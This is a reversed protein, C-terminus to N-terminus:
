SPSDGNQRRDYQVQGAVKRAKVARTLVYLRIGCALTYALCLGMAAVGTLTSTLIATAILVITYVGFGYGMLAMGCQEIRDWAGIRGVVSLVGGLGLSGQWMVTVIWYLIHFSGPTIAGASLVAAIGFLMFVIAPLLEFPASIMAVWIRNPEGPHSGPIRSKGNGNSTM